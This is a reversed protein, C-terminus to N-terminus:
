QDDGLIEKVSREGAGASLNTFVGAPSFHWSLTLGNVDKTSITTGKEDRAVILSRGPGNYVGERVTVQERAM